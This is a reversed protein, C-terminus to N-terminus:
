MLLFLPRCITVSVHGQQRVVLQGDLLHTTTLCISSHRRMGAQDSMVLFHVHDNGLKHHLTGSYKKIFFM